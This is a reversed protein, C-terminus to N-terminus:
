IHEKFMKLVEDKLYVHDKNARTIEIFVDHEEKTEFAVLVPEEGEYYLIYDENKLHYYYEDFQDLDYNGARVDELFEHLDITWMEKDFFDEDLIDYILEGISSYDFIVSVIKRKLM